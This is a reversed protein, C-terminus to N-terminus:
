KKIFKDLLINEVYKLSNSSINNYELEKYTIFIHISCILFLFLLLYKYDM